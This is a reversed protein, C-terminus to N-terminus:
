INAAEEVRRQAAELASTCERILRIGQEYLSLSQELSLPNESADFAALITDLASLKEEFTQENM